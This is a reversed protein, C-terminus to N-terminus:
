RQYQSRNPHRSNTSASLARADPHCDPYGELAPCSVASLAAGGGFVADNKSGQSQAASVIGLMLLAALALKTKTIMTLEKSHDHPRNSVEGIANSDWNLLRIKCSCHPV